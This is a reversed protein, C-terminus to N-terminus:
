WGLDKKEIYVQTQRRIENRPTSLTGCSCRLFFRWGHATAPMSRHYDYADFQYILGNMVSTTRVENMYIMDNIEESHHGWTNGNTMSFQNEHVRVNLFQTLSNTKYDVICTYHTMNPIAKHSFDPQGDPGRPIADRHWGPIAPNWGPKLMHVRTDIIATNLEQITLSNMLTDLVRLTIEGGNDDAFGIDSSFLMPENKIENEGKIIPLKQFARMINGLTNRYM